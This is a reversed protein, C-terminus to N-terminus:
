QNQIANAGMQYRGHPSTLESLKMQPGKTHLKQEPGEPFTRKNEGEMGEAGRKKPKNNGTKDMHAQAERDRM